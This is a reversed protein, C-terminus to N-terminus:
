AARTGAVEAILTTLHPDLADRWATYNHADRVQVFEAPYGLRRLSAAMAENDALNEEATGCTLAAPIPRPDADAAHVDAVFATVPGFGSFGAEQPDLEPTFFSGSQLFLGDLLTPSTRHLHLMALAGLSVGVGIRVTAPVMAELAPLAATGLSQAYAPNASYWEDRDGPALLAARLPPVAGSATSAALYRTFDGLRDYEPGDHVILLPAPEDEALSDPTWITADISSDLAPADLRVATETSPAPSDTLWRPPLYGNIELVSKEGFAGAVRRPNAPDTITRSGDHDQIQFLYEMRQLDPQALELRWVGRSRSFDLPEPLGIEQVLRVGALRGARDVLEFAVTPAPHRSTDPV